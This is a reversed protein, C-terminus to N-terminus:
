IKLNTRHIHRKKLIIIINVATPRRMSIVGDSYFFHTRSLQLSILGLPGSPNRSAPKNPTATVVILPEEIPKPPITSSSAAKKKIEIWRRAARQIIRVSRCMHSLNSLMRRNDKKKRWWMQLRVAARIQLTRRWWCQILIAARKRRLHERWWTQIVSAAQGRVYNKWQEAMEVGHETAYVQGNGVRIEEGMKSYTSVIRRCLELSDEDGGPRTRVLFKYRTAFEEHSMRYTIFILSSSNNYNFKLDTGSPSVSLLSKSRTSSEAPTSSPTWMTMMGDDLLRQLARQRGSAACTTSM